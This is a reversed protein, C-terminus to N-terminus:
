SQSRGGDRSIDHLSVILNEIHDAKNKGFIKQTDIASIASIAKEITKNKALEKPEHTALIIFADIGEVVKGGQILSSLVWGTESNEAVLKPENVCLAFFQKAVDKVFGQHILAEYAEGISTNAAINAPHERTARRLIEKVASAHGNNALASLAFGVHKNFTVLAAESNFLYEVAELALDGNGNNALKAAFDFVETSRAADRPFKKVLHCFDEAYSRHENERKRRIRPRNTVKRFADDFNRTHKAM